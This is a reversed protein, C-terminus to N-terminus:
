KSWIQGLNTKLVTHCNTLVELHGYVALEASKGKYLCNTGSSKLCKLGKVCQSPHRLNANKVRAQKGQVICKIICYM